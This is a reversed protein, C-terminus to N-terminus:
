RIFTQLDNSQGMPHLRMRALTEEPMRLSMDAHPDSQYHSPMGDFPVGHTAHPSVGPPMHSVNPVAGSHSYRHDSPFRGLREQYSPLNNAPYTIPNINSMAYDDFGATSYGAGPLRREIDQYNPQFDKVGLSPPFDHPGNFGSVSDNPTLPSVKGSSNSNYSSPLGGMLDYPNNGNSGTFSPVSDNFPAHSYLNDSNIGYNHGLSSSSSANTRYAQSSLSGNSVTNPFLDYNTHETDMSDNQPQNHASM